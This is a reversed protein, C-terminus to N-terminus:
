PPLTKWASTPSERTWLWDRNDLSEHGNLAFLQFGIYEDHACPRGAEGAGQVQRIEDLLVIGAARLRFEGRFIDVHQFFAAFDARVLEGARDHIGHRQRLKTGSKAFVAGSSVGTVSEAASM